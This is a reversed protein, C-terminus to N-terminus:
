SLFPCERFVGSGQPVGVAPSDSGGNGAQNELHRMSPCDNSDAINILKGGTLETVAAPGAPSSTGGNVLQRPNMGTPTAAPTLM